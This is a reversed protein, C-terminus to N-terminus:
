RRDYRLGAGLLAAWCAGILFGALVDSPWHVGMALRGLGVLAAIVGLLLLVAAREPLSGSARIWVLALLGYVAMTKAAHGSPFSHFSPRAIGEYLLDPRARDWIMWGFRVILDTGIVALLISLGTIPRRARIAMIATATVLVVLTIDSGFTQVFIAANFGLPGDRGLWQLFAEEWGLWGAGVATAAFVRLAIALVLLGASGAGVLRLWSSWDGAPIAARGEGFRQRLSTWGRAIATASPEQRTV